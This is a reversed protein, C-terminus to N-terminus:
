KKASKRKKVQKPKVIAQKVEVFEEKIQPLICIGHEIYRNAKDKPLDVIEGVSFVEDKGGLVQIFEVKM